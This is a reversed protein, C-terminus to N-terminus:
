RTAWKIYLSIIKNKMSAPLPSEKEGTWDKNPLMSPHISKVLKFSLEAKKYRDNEANDLETETFSSSFYDWMEDLWKKCDENQFEVENSAMDFIVRIAEIRKRLDLSWFEKNIFSVGCSSFNFQAKEIEPGIFNLFSSWTKKNDKTTDDDKFARNFPTDFLYLGHFTGFPDSSNAPLQM